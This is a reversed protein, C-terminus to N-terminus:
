TDSEDINILDGRGIKVSSCDLLGEKGLQIVNTRSLSAYGIIVNAPEGLHVRLSITPVNEDRHDGVTIIRSSIDAIECFVSSEV